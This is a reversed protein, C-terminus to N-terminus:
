KWSCYQLDVGNPRNPLPIHYSTLIIYPFHWLPCSPKLRPVSLLSNQSHLSIKIRDPDLNSLIVLLAKDNSARKHQSLYFLSFKNYFEWIEPNYRLISPCFTYGFRVLSWSWSHDTCRLSHYEQCHLTMRFRVDWGRWKNWKHRMKCILNRLMEMCMNSLLYCGRRRTHIVEWNLWLSRKGTNKPSQIWGAIALLAPDHLLGM